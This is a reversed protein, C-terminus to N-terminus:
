ASPLSKFWHTNVPERDSVIRITGTVNKPPILHVFSQLLNGLEKISLVVHPCGVPRQVCCLNHPVEMQLLPPDKGTQGGAGEGGMEERRVNDVSLLPVPGRQFLECVSIEKKHKEPSCALQLLTSLCCSKVCIVTNWKVLCRLVFIGPNSDVSFRYEGLSPLNQFPRTM